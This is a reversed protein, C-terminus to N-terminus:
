AANSKSRAKSLENKLWEIKVARVEQPGMKRIKDKMASKFEANLKGTTAKRLRALEILLPNLTGGIPRKAAAKKGAPRGPRRGRRGGEAVADRGAAVVIELSTHCNPCTFSSIIDAGLDERLARLFMDFMQPNSEKLSRLASNM